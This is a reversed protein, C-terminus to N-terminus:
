DWFVKLATMFCRTKTNNNKTAIPLHTFPLYKSLIFLDVESVFEFLRGNPIIKDHSKNKNGKKSVLRQHKRGHWYSLWIHECLIRVWIQETCGRKIFKSRKHTACLKKVRPERYCCDLFRCVFYGHWLTISECLLWKEHKQSNKNHLFNLNGSQVHFAFLLIVCLLCYPDTEFLLSMSSTTHSITDMCYHCRM